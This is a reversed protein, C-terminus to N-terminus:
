LRQGRGCLERTLRDRFPSQEFLDLVKGVRQEGQSQFYKWLRCAQKYTSDAMGAQGPSLENLASRYFQIAPENLILAAEGETAYLWYRDKQESDLKTACITAVERAIQQAIAEKGTLLALTAANIGVYWEKSFDYAERYISFAKDYMQLSPARTQRSKGEDQLDPLEEEAKRDGADKYLRGIRGLTEFDQFTAAEAKMKELLSEAVHLLGQEMQLLLAQGILPIAHQFQPNVQFGTIRNDTERQPKLVFEEVFQCGEEYKKEKWYGYCQHLPIRYSPSSSSHDTLSQSDSTQMLSKLLKPTRPMRALAVGASILAAEQQPETYDWRVNMLGYVGLAFYLEDKWKHQRRPIKFGMWNAAERRVRLIIAALRNLKHLRTPPAACPLIQEAQQSDRISKMLDDVLEEFALFAVLRDAREANLSPVSEESNQDDLKPHVHRLRSSKILYRFVEEDRILEPLLRVKLETELKAFDWALVNHPSMDGYDFVAPYQVEGRRVGVLINRSHLDGHGRGILTEPLRLGQSEQMSWEVYEVPDLYRAPKTVPDADPIDRSSIVWVAHRRMDLRLEDEKWTHLVEVDSPNTKVIRLREAYFKWTGCASPAAGHYFWLGLDTFITALAREASLPDPKDDLVAWAIAEELLKPRSDQNQHEDPGFLSFADRYIVAVRDASLEIKRVPAFIRSAVMRGRTCAQWGTFDPEVKARSGVKLIHREYRDAYTVEAALVVKTEYEPTYGSFLRPVFVKITHDSLAPDLTELQQFVARLEKELTHRLHQPLAEHVVGSFEVTVVPAATMSLFSTPQSM